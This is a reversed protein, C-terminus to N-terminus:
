ELTANEPMYKKENGKKVQTCKKRQEPTCNALADKFQKKTLTSHVMYEAKEWDTHDKAMAYTTAFEPAFIGFVKRQSDIGEKGNAFQDRLTGINDRLEEIVNFLKPAGGWANYKWIIIIVAHKDVDKRESDHVPSFNFLEIYYITNYAMYINISQHAFFGYVGLYHNKDFIKKKPEKINKEKEDKNSKKDDETTKTSMCYYRNPDLYKPFSNKIANLSADISILSNNETMALAKLLDRQYLRKM